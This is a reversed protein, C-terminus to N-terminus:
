EDKLLNLIYRSGDIKFYKKLLLVKARESLKLKIFLVLPVM